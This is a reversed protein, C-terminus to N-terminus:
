LYIFDNKRAPAHGAKLESSGSTDVSPAEDSM